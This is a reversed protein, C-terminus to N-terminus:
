RKWSPKQAYGVYAWLSLLFFLMSLLSKPEAVWAVSEVNVPHLAFLAAVLASRWPAGTARWLLLFLLVVNIAHLIVNTWHHGGANMGYLQFDLAHSLWTLPHWNAADTTTMAWSFAQWNLGAHVHPNEAVYLQDDFNIFPHSGVPSYLALTWVALVFCVAAAQWNPLGPPNVLSPANPTRKAAAYAARRREKRSIPQTPSM